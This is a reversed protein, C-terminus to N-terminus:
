LLQFTTQRRACARAGARAVQSWSVRLAAGERAQWQSFRRARRKEEQLLVLDETWRLKRSRERARRIHTSDYAPPLSVLAPDASDFEETLASFFGLSLRLLAAGNFAM